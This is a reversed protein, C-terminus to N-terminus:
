NGTSPTTSAPLQFNKNTTKNAELTLRGLPTGLSQSSFGPQAVTSSPPLYVDYTGPPLESNNIIGTENSTIIIPPVHGGVRILHLTGSQGTGQSSQLIGTFTADAPILRITATTETSLDLDQFGLIRGSKDMVTVISSSLAVNEFTVLGESEITGNLVTNSNGQQLQVTGSSASQGSGLIVTLSVEGVQTLEIDGLDVVTQNPGVTFPVDIRAYRPSHVALVYNGPAVRQYSFAGDANVPTKALLRQMDPQGDPRAGSCVLTAAVPDGSDKSLVKGSVLAGTFITLSLEQTSQDETFQLDRLVRAYGEADAVIQYRRFLLKDIQARGEADTSAEAIIPNGDRYLAGFQTLKITVDALGRDNQDKVLISLTRPARLSLNQNSLPRDTLNISLPKSSLSEEKSALVVYRGRALQFEYDGTPSSQGEAIAQINTSVYAVNEAAILRTYDAPNYVRVTAGSVSDGAANKVTGQIRYAQGLQIDGLDVENSESLPILINKSEIGDPSQIFLRFQHGEATLKFQGDQDSVGAVAAGMRPPKSLAAMPLISVQAEAIAQSNVDVLRGKVSLTRSEMTVANEELWNA